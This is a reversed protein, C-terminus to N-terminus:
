SDAKAIAAQVKKWAEGADEDGHNFIYLLVPAAAECAALLDDNISKLNSVVCHRYYPEDDDNVCDVSWTTDFEDSGLQLYVLGPPAFSYEMEVYAMEDYESM